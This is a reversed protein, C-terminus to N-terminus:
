AVYMDTKNYTFLAWICDAVVYPVQGLTLLLNLMFIDFKIRRANM